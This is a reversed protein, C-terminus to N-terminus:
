NNFFVKAFDCEGEPSRVNYNVSLSFKIGELDSTYIHGFRSKDGFHNVHLFVSNESTDIFTYSHERFKSIGLEINQFNYNIQDSKATLLMVEQSDQDVVQALFLYDKTLLFKNGKQAGIKKTNFYNDSYVFDIKYNWGSTKQNGRGNPEYSMLIREKPIGM